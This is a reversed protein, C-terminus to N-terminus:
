LNRVCLLASLTSKTKRLTGTIKGMIGNFLETTANGLVKPGVITFITSAVAFIMVLILRFKYRGLYHLLQKMTGKFDKVKPKGHAMAAPGYGRM